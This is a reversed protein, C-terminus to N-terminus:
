QLDNDNGLVICNNLFINEEELLCTKVITKQTVRDNETVEFADWLLYEVGVDVPNRPKFVTGLARMSLVPM